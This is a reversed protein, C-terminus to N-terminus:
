LVFGGASELASGPRGESPKRNDGATRSVQGPGLGAILGSIDGIGRIAILYAEDPTRGEAVLDQYKDLVNQLMEEKLERAAETKPASVFLKEMHARIKEEM